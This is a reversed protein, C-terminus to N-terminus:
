LCISVHEDPLDSRYPVSFKTSRTLTRIEQPGLPVTIQVTLKRLTEM